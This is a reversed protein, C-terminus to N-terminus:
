PVTYEIILTPRSSATAYNGSFFRVFDAIGNDNDDKQFRLRFQTTGTLNVYQYSTAGVTVSYWNNVPAGFLGAVKNAAAQFDSLALGVTTGFFPKVIEAMLKDHTTFPDTGALNQKRIKLTVSKITANDPLSATNFSIISRYQKDSANDGIQFTTATNDKTGGVASTETSELIWGDASAASRVTLTQIPVPTVTLTGKVYASIVYNPGPNAGYCTIDYTGVASHAVSVGCTPATVFTEAGIFGTAVYTFVPDPQGTIKTKNVATVTVGKATINATDIASANLLTYNGAGAGGISIGTVTVTKNVGVNKTDFNASAYSVTVVDGALANTAFTVTAATAGDYTKNSANATVTLGRATINATATPQILLYKGADAGSLTLGTITVEKGAGVNEAAFAASAGSTELTVDDGPLVGVLTAGSLDLTATTNGDYVKNNALVGTVTATAGLISATTTPQTLSYNDKAAGDLTLGSVTV